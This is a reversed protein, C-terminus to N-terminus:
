RDRSWFKRSFFPAFGILVLVINSIAMVLEIKIHILLAYNSWIVTYDFFINYPPWAQIVQGGTNRNIARPLRCNSCSTELFEASSWDASGFTTM